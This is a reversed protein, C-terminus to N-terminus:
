STTRRLPVGGKAAPKGPARPKSGFLVGSLAGDIAKITTSFVSAGGGAAPATRVPQAGTKPPAGTKLQAGPKLQAPKPPAVKPSAVAKSPVPPRAAAKAVPAFVSFISSGSWPAPKAVAAAKVVPQPRAAQRVGAPKSPAIMAELFALPSKFAGKGAAPRKAAALAPNGAKVAKVPAPALAPM